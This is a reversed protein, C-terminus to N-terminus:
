HIELSSLLQYVIPFGVAGLSPEIEEWYGLQDRSLADPMSAKVIEFV